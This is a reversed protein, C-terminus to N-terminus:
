EGWTGARGDKGERGRGSTWIIVKGWDTMGRDMTDVWSNTRGDMRRREATWQTTVGM